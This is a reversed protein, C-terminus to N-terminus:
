YSVRNHTHHRFREAMQMQEIMMDNADTIQTERQLLIVLQKVFMAGSGFFLYFGLPLSILCMPFALIFLMPPERQKFLGENSGQRQAFFRPWGDYFSHNSILPRGRWLFSWRHVACMAIFALWFCFMPRSDYGEWFILFLPILVCAGIANLGLYRSGFDRRIFVEISTSWSWIVFMLLNFQSRNSFMGDSSQNQENM